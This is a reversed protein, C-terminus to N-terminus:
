RSRQRNNGKKPPIPLRLCFRCLRLIGINIGFAAFYVPLSYLLLWSNYTFVGFLTALWELGTTLVACGACYLAAKFGQPRWIDWIYLLIYMTVPYLILYLIMESWELKPSDMVDYWDYPEVAIILDVSVALYFNFVYPFLAEMRTFHKPLLCVIGILIVSIVLVFWENADWQAPPELINM